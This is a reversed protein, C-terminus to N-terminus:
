FWQALAVPPRPTFLALVPTLLLLLSWVGTLSRRRSHAITDLGSKPWVGASLGSSTLPKAGIDVVAQNQWCYGVDRFGRLVREQVGKADARCVKLM